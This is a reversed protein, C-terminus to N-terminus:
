DYRVSIYYPYFLIQIADIKSVPKNWSTQQLNIANFFLYRILSNHLEPFTLVTVVLIQNKKKKKRICSKWEKKAFEKKHLNRKMYIGERTCGKENKHTFSLINPDITDSWKKLTKRNSFPLEVGPLSCKRKWLGPPDEM